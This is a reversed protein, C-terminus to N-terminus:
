VSSDKARTMINYFNATTQAEHAASRLGPSSHLDGQVTQEKLCFEPLVALEHLITSSTQWALNRQSHTYTLIAM